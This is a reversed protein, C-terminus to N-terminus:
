ARDAKASFREADGGQQGPPKRGVEDVVLAVVQQDRGAVVAVGVRHPGQHHM